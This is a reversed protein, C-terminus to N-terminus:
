LLGKNSSLPLDYLNYGELTLKNLLFEKMRTKEGKRMRKMGHIKDHCRRCIKVFPSKHDGFISHKTIKNVQKKCFECFIM